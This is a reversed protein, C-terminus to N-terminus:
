SCYPTTKRPMRGSCSPIIQYKIAYRDEPHPNKQYDMIVKLVDLPSTGNRVREQYAYQYCEMHVRSVKPWYVVQCPYERYYQHLKKGSSIIEGINSLGAKWSSQVGAEDEEVVKVTVLKGCVSCLQLAHHILKFGVDLKDNCTQHAAYDLILQLPELPVNYRQQHIIQSFPGILDFGEVTHEARFVTYFDVPLQEPPFGFVWQRPRWKPNHPLIGTPNRSVNLRYWDPEEPIWLWRRPRWEKHRSGEPHPNPGFTPCWM